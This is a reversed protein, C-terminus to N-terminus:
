KEDFLYSGLKFLLYYLVAVPIVIFSEPLDPAVIDAIFTVALPCAFLSSIAFLKPSSRKPRIAISTAFLIFPSALLLCMVSLIVYGFFQSVSSDQSKSSSSRGSTGGSNAGTKDDFNYPCVGNTHQHAPYGHHYHYESGDHHGGNADTGGPHALASVPLIFLLLLILPLIRRGKLVFCRRVIMIPVGYRFFLSKDFLLYFLMSM